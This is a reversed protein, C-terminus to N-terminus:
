TFLFPIATVIDTRIGHMLM